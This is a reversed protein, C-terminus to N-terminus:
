LSNELDFIHSKQKKASEVSLLIGQEESEVAFGGILYRKEEM